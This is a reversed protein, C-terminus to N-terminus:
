EESNYKKYFMDSGGFVFFFFGAPISESSSLVIVTDHTELSPFFDLLKVDPIM